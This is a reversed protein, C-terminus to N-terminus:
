GVVVISDAKVRYNFYIIYRIDCLVSGKYSYIIVLESLMIGHNLYKPMRICLLYKPVLQNQLFVFSKVRFDNIMQM